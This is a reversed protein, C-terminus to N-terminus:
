VEWYDRAHSLSEPHRGTEELEAWWEQEKFRAYWRQLPQLKEDEFMNYAYSLEIYRVMGALAVDVIGPYGLGPTLWGGAELSEGAWDQVRVLGRIMSQKAHRAVPLSRDENKMGSWMTTVGVANKLLYNFDAMAQTAVGQIDNMLARDLPTPSIMPVKDPYLEELFLRISATEHIWRPPSATATDTIRLCPLSKGDPKPDKPDTGKLSTGDYVIRNVNLRPDNTKGSYLQAPSNVLGKALMYYVLQKPFAGEVWLFLTLNATPSLIM